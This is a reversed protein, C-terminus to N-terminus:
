QIKPYWIFGIRPLSYFISNDVEKIDPQDPDDGTFWVGTGRHLAFDIRWEFTPTFLGVPSEINIYIGLGANIGFLNSIKNEQYGGISNHIYTVGTTGFFNVRNYPNPIWHLSFEVLQFISPDVGELEDSNKTDKSYVYAVDAVLFDLPSFTIFAGYASLGEHSIDIDKAEKDIESRYQTEVITNFALFPGFGIFKEFPNIFEEQMEGEIFEEDGTRTDESQASAMFTSLLLFMPILALRFLKKANETTMSIVKEISESKYEAIKDAVYKVYSPENRKGRNPVPTMYPSDTELLLRDLPVEKVVESLDTKKFTINGTFSIHFGLTLARDMMDIQSSFCHLVGKLSGDQEEELIRILDEDSERNHIIVPLDKKKAINLQKAFAEQQIEPAAFDYHYDLGIEGIAVVPEEGSMNEVLELNKFDADNANHPHIGMGCLLIENARTLELLKYFHKPEIAPIIIKEVGADQARKLVDRRDADYAETDLHAHTDIMGTYIM